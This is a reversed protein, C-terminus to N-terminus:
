GFIRRFNKVKGTYTSMFGALKQRIIVSTDRWYAYANGMLAIFTTLTLFITHDPSTAILVCGLGTISLTALVRYSTHDPWQLDHESLWKRAGYVFAVAGAIEAMLLAMGAGTLGWVPLLIVTGLVVFLSSLVSILMQRRLVNNGMLISMAPQAYAYVLVSMSLLAFLLPIFQIQGKTWLPFLLPILAQLLVVGPALLLVVVLWVTDFAARLRVQDRQRVYRMLEPLIPYTITTIGQLAVNAVTRTTTFVALGVAGAFPTILLRGGQQKFNDLFYQLSLGLSAKYSTLGLAVSATSRDTIGNKKLLRWIDGLQLLTGLLTGAAAWLSASVIGGGLMIAVAPLSLSVTSVFVGWWVMRYYYGFGSLSRNLLGVLNSFAWAVWQIFFALGIETFSLQNSIGVWDKLLFGAQSSLGAAIGLEIGIILLLAYVGSWLVNIFRDKQEPGIKLLEYGLYDNFGRDTTSLVNVVTQITIWIGFEDVTWYTLYIPVMVVQAVMTVAIRTWSAFTASLVRNSTSKPM